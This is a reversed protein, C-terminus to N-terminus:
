RQFDEVIETKEGLKWEQLRQVNVVIIRSVVTDYHRCYREVALKLNPVLFEGFFKTHL